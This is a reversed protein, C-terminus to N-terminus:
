SCLALNQHPLMLSGELVQHISLTGILYAAPVPTHAPTLLAPTERPSRFVIPASRSLMRAATVVVVENLLGGHGLGVSEMASLQCGAQHQWRLDLTSDGAGRMSTLHWCGGAIRLKLRDQLKVRSLLM